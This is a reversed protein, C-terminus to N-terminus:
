RLYIMSIINSARMGEYLVSPVIFQMVEDLPRAAIDTGACALTFIADHAGCQHVSKFDVFKTGM